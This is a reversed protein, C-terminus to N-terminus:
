MNKQIKIIKICNSSIKRERNMNKTYRNRFKSSIASSLDTLKKDEEIEFRHKSLLKHTQNHIVELEKGLKIQCGNLNFIVNAHLNNLYDDKNTYLHDSLTPDIKIM